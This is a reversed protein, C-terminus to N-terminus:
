DLIERKFKPKHSYTHQKANGHGKCFTQWGQKLAFSTVNITLEYYVFYVHSLKLLFSTSCALYGLVSCHEQIKFM